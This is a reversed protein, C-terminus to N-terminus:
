VYRSLYFDEKKTMLIKEDDSKDKYGCLHLVGHVMVRRLEVDFLQDFDLANDKVRETSILVEGMIGSPDSYDFTIIDTLNDHSLFEQNVKLLEQDNCFNFSVEKLVKEESSIVALLWLSIRKQSTLRFSTSSSFKLM